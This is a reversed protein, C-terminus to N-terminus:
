SVRTRGDRAKRCGRGQSPVGQVSGEEGPRPLDDLQEHLMKTETEPSQSQKCCLWVEPGLGWRRMSQSGATYEWPCCNLKNAKIDRGWLQSDVPAPSAAMVRSMLSRTPPCHPLSLPSTTDHSQSPHAQVRDGAGVLVKMLLAKEKEAVKRWIKTVQYIESNLFRNQTRYAEMDDQLLSCFTLLQVVSM